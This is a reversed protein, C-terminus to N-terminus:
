RYIYIRLKRFIFYYKNKKFLIHCFFDYLDIYIKKDIFHNIINKISNNKEKLEYSNEVNNNKDKLENYLNKIYKNKM